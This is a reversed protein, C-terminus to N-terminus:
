EIAFELTAAWTIYKGEGLRACEQLRRRHLNREGNENAYYSAYLIVNRGLRQRLEKELHLLYEVNMSTWQENSFRSKPNTVGLSFSSTIGPFKGKQAMLVMEAKRRGYANGGTYDDWKNDGGMFSRVVANCDIKYDDFQWRLEREMDEDTALSRFAAVADRQQKYERDYQASKLDNSLYVVYWIMIAIVSIPIWFM